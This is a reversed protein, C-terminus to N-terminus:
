RGTPFMKQDKLANRVAEKLAPGRLNMALVRGDPAILFTAPIARVLYTEAVGELMKGGHVQTWVLANEKTYKAPALAAEDCSVGVLLFRPDGGFTKQIDKLAPMEARCPWCWTAWFDLLVLKGRTDSMKFRGGDLRPATFDRALDGVRVYLRVKVDGVEVPQDDPGEPVTVRLTAEGMRARDLGCTTRDSPSNVPIKLEYTGPKVDEIRFRGDRDFGSAFTRWPRTAKRLEARPTELVAADNSRWDVLEPPTGDLVVRGIVPRGNGGHRVRTTQGPKVEVPMRNCWEGRYTTDLVRAIEGRGPIVRDIAFRGQSDATFHYDYSEMRLADGRNAPMEPLYVVSQYAAPKRGIRMEGEIRGWPQLVLKGTKAFEDSTADAFGADAAVVILFGEARKPVTLRGDPGTTLREAHSNDQFVGGRVFARDVQTGLVVEAGAAPRGDPLLVVGAIVAAPKLRFDQIVAGEDSRFARSEAPEYGPVEVRVYTQKEPSDFNMSYRGGTHEVAGMRWWQITQKKGLFWSLIGQREQLQDFGQVVRFRSVPQGTVADTVSGSIVLAPDLTVVHERDSATLSVPDKRLYGDNFVHVLM